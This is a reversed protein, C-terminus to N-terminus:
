ECCKVKWQFSSTFLTDSFKSATNNVHPPQSTRSYNVICSANWNKLTVRDTQTCEVTSLDNDAFAKPGLLFSILHLKRKSRLFLPYAKHIWLSFTLNLKNLKGLSRSDQLSFAAVQLGDKSRDQWLDAYHFAQHSSQILGHSCSQYFCSSTQFNRLFNSQNEAANGGRSGWSRRFCSSIIENTLRQWM